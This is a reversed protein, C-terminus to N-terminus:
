ILSKFLHDQQLHTQGLLHPRVLESEFTKCDEDSSVQCIKLKSLLLAICFITAAELLFTVIGRRRLFCM